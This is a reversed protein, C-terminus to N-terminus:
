KLIRWNYFCRGFLNRHETILHRHRIIQWGELGCFVDNLIGSVQRRQFFIWGAILLLSLNL